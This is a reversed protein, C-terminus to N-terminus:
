RNPPHCSGPPHLAAPSLASLCSGPPLTKIGHHLIPEGGPLPKRNVSSPSIPLTSSLGMDDGRSESWLATGSIMTQVPNPETPEALSPVQMKWFETPNRTLTPWFLITHSKSLPLLSSNMMRLLNHQDSVTVNSGESTAAEMCSDAPEGKPPWICQPKKSTGM